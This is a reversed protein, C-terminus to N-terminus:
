RCAPAAPRRAGGRLGCPRLSPDPRRGVARVVGRAPGRAVPDRVAPGGARTSCARPLRRRPRDPRAPDHRGPARGRRPPGAGRGAARGDAGRVRDLRRPGRCGRDAGVRAPPGSRTGAGAPGRRRATGRGAGGRRVTDVGQVIGRMLFPVVDPAAAVAERVAEVGADRVLDAPDADEPLVLVRLQFDPAGDEQVERAAEFARRAAKQGAADGDFALVIRDVRSPWCASTSPGSPRAAPRWPTPSGPRTCRWSTPTARASSSRRRRPSRRAHRTSATSCRPRRTSGTSPRTSTSRRPTTATTWAPLVRGGFGIPEGRVDLVPFVLRGRFTDM